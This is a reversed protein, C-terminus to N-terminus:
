WRLYLGIHVQFAIPFELINTMQFFFKQIQILLKQFALRLILIVNILCPLRLMLWLLECGILKEAEYRTNELPTVSAHGIINKPPLTHRVEKM